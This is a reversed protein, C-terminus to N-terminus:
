CLDVVERVPRIEVSKANRGMHLAMRSERISRYTWSADVGFGCLSRMTLPRTTLSVGLASDFAKSTLAGTSRYRWRQILVPGEDDFNANLLVGFVSDM